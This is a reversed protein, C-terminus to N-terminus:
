QAAALYAKWDKELQDMDWGYVKQFAGDYTSGEKFTNLLDLMKDAGQTKILFDVLSSSEAYSLNAKNADASFPSSISRVSILTKGSIAKALPGSFQETLPGESYMALGENLWIPLGHYPNFTVQNIVIHTLEHTMAGKGWNLNDPSIGIAVVNYTTFAVGGTWESPYIMSGQLDQSGNYIYIDITKPPTAGTDRALNILAQQATSMLARAFADDGKYWYLNIKGENLQKWTFRNDKIEFPQAQTDLVNGGADKVSWWYNLTTGPPLGGVKRMDLTYRANVAPSPQTKIFAESIVSAFSMQDVKYKLRIDTINVQSSVRASFNLNLPFDMVASSNTVAIASQSQASSPIVAQVALIILLVLILGGSAAMKKNM